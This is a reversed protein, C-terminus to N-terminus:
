LDLYKIKNKRIQILFLKEMEVFRILETLERGLKSRSTQGIAINELIIDKIDLYLEIITEDLNDILTKDMQIVRRPLDKVVGM